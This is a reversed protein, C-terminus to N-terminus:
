LTPRAFKTYEGGIFDTIGLFTKNGNEVLRKNTDIIGVRTNYQDIRITNLPGTIKWLIQLILYDSVDYNVTGNSFNDYEQNSIEIVFGKDNVRKIFSRLLYGKKYDSEIAFPFYSVPAGSRTNKAINNRLQLPISNLNLNNNSVVLGENSQLDSTENKVIRSLEENPGIIPNSGTFAKGNYTIYYKGKYPGSSNKYENGNTTLNTKVRFSPYYRLM